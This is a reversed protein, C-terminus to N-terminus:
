KSIVKLQGLIVGAHGEVWAFWKVRSLPEESLFRFGLPCKIWVEM